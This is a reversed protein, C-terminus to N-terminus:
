VKRFLISIGMRGSASTVNEPVDSLNIVFFRGIISEFKFLTDSSFSSTSSM